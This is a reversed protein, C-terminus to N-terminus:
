CILMERKTTAHVKKKPRGRKKKPHAEQSKSHLFELADVALIPVECLNRDQESELSVLVEKGGNLVEINPLLYESGLPRKASGGTWTATGDVVLELQGVGNLEAHFNNAGSQTALPAAGVLKSPSDNDNVLGVYNSVHPGAQHLGFADECRDMKVCNCKLNPEEGRKCLGAVVVCQDVEQAKAKSPGSDTGSGLEPLLMEIQYNNSVIVHDRQTCLVPDEVTKFGGIGQYAGKVTVGNILSDIDCCDWLDSGIQIGFDFVEANEDHAFREWGENESYNSNTDNQDQNFISKSAQLLPGFNEGPLWTSSRSYRTEKKKAAEQLAAKVVEKCGLLLILLLVYLKDSFVSTM